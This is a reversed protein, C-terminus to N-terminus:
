PSSATPTVCPVGDVGYLTPVRTQSGASLVGEIRDHSSSVGGAEPLPDKLM